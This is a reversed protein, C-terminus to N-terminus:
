ERGFDILRDQIQIEDKKEEKESKKKNFESMKYKILKNNM